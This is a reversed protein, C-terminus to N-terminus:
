GSRGGKARKRRLCTPLKAFGDDYFQLHFDDGSLPEDIHEDTLQLEADLIANRLDGSIGICRVCRPHGGVLDLPRQKHKTALAVHDVEAAAARNLEAIWNTPELKRRERLMVVAARKAEGLVLLESARDGGRAVWRQRAGGPWAVEMLWGAGSKKPSDVRYTCSNIKAFTPVGVSRRKLNQLAKNQKFNKSGSLGTQGKTAEVRM